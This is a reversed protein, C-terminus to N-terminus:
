HLSCPAFTLLKKVRNETMASPSGLNVVVTLVETSTQVRKLAATQVLLASMLIKASMRPKSSTALRVRAPIDAMM